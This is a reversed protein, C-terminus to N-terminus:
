QVTSITFIFHIWVLFFFSFPYDCLLPRNGKKLTKMESAFSFWSLSDAHRSRWQAILTTLSNPSYDTVEVCRMGTPKITFNWPSHDYNPFCLALNSYAASWTGSTSWLYNCHRQDGDVKMNKCSRGDVNSLTKDYGTMDWRSLCPIGKSMLCLHVLTLNVQLTLVDTDNESSKFMHCWMVM